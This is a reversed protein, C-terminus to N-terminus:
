IHFKHMASGVDGDNETRVFIMIFILCLFQMELMSESHYIISTNQMMDLSNVEKFRQADLMEKNIQGVLNDEIWKAALEPVVAEKEQLAVRKFLKDYDNENM